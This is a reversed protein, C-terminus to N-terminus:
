PAVERDDHPDDLTKGEGDPSTQIIDHHSSDMMESDLGSGQNSSHDDSFSLPPRPFFQTSQQEMRREDYPPVNDMVPNRLVFVRFDQQFAADQYLPSHSFSNSFEEMARQRVEEISLVSGTVLNSQSSASEIPPLVDVDYKAPAVMEASKAFVGTSSGVRFTSSLHTSKELHGSLMPIDDGFWARVLSWLKPEEPCEQRYKIYLPRTYVCLNFFGQIPAFFAELVLLPYFRAEDSATFNFSEMVKLLFVWLYAVYFTGVYLFAQAAVSGIKAQQHKNGRM